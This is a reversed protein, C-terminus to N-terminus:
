KCKKKFNCMYKIDSMNYKLYSLTLAHQNTFLTSLSILTLNYKHTTFRNACAKAM